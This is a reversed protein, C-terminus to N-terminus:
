IAFLKRYGKKKGENAINEINIIGDVIDKFIQVNKETDNTVGIYHVMNVPQVPFKINIFELDIMIVCAGSFFLKGCKGITM